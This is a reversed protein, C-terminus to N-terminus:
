EGLRPRPRRWARLRHWRRLETAHGDGRDLLLSAVRGSSLAALAPQLWRDDLLALDRLADLDVLVDSDAHELADPLAGVTARGAVLARVVADATLVHAHAMTRGSAVPPLSGGGWPWLANFQPLGRAARDATRPHNHLVIQAESLLTRWRRAHPSDGEIAQTVEGLDGGLADGPDVFEPLTAGSGCRVYWRGQSTADFTMGADGFLPRLAPLLADADDEDVCMSAGYAMLRVGNIDPRLWAPELLLWRHDGADGADAQRSLAAVPWGSGPLDVHRLLQARRGPVGQRLRTGRGLASASAVPLRQAGFRAPDPLLFTIRAM